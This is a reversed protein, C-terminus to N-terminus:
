FLTANKLLSILSHYKMLCLIKELVRFVRFFRFIETQKTIETNM